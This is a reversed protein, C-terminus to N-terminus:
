FCRTIRYLLLSDAIYVVYRFMSKLPNAWETDQKPGKPPPPPPPPPRSSDSSSQQDETTKKKQGEKSSQAKIANEAALFVALPSLM